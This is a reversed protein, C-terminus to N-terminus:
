NDSFSPPLPFEKALTRLEGELNDPVFGTSRLLSTNLVLRAPRFAPMPMEKQSCVEIAAHEIGFADRVSLALAYRSIGDPGGLHFTGSAGQALLHFMGRSAAAGGLFSRFEDYFAKIPFFHHWADLWEQLFSLRSASSWGCLVSIRVISSAPYLKQILQEAEWKQRGYENLPNPIDQETYSDSHGDFVQESSTFLFPVKREACVEALFVSADVNLTRTALPSRECENTDACAALHMVADPHLTKMLRWVANRDLLDLGVHEARPYIGKKNRHWTGVLRWDEPHTRFVNWGLFGSAGTVLLTKM